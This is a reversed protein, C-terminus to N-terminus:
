HEPILRRAAWKHGSVDSLNRRIDDREACRDISRLLHDRPVHDKLSVEYFLAAQAEQKPGMM